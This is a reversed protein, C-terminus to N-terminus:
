QSSQPVSAHRAEAERMCRAPYEGDRRWQYEGGWDLEPEGMPREPYARHHRALAETAIVDLGIGGIRSATWTFYHDVFDKALGIAEFIQAARYSQITSIGMKSIVKLVGKNLAKIYNKIAAKHDLAPGRPGEYRGRM